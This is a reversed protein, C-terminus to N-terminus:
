VEMLEEEKRYYLTLQTGEVYVFIYRDHTYEKENYTYSYTITYIGEVSIDVTNSKIACSNSTGNILVECEGDIYADGVKISTVANGLIFEVTPIDSVTVYRVIVTENGSEDTVTYTLVYIGATSTDVMGEVVTTINETDYTDVSYETYEDGITISDLSPNLSVIPATTDEVIVTRTVEVAINLNTDTINYTITYTGLVSTDVTDGGITAVGDSDYNDTFIAGSETYDSGAEVHVTEDGTLTIVPITTDQVIVTRTVEVAVNGETDTINYTVTYSGLTSSDITDGGITADGSEDYNDSYTAGNETYDSGAEVYITSDGILTIVPITTDQVIVTRTVETAVNGETDTINYTVTYSGLTSSDVTDGGITADGSEDYNDTFTAGEETYTGEYEVYIISDSTLTIVPLTTDQVIVTRTVEIAVNGETDTINYTITYTGLISSDVRDGGILADGSADYNDTFTAGLDVYSDDDALTIVPIYIELTNNFTGNGLQGDPNNGWTSVIGNKSLAAVTGGSLHTQIIKDTESSLIGDTINVPYYPPITEGNGVMGLSNKGWGYIQGNKTLLTISDWRALVYIPSDGSEFNFNNTIEYPTSKNSTTGDGILYSYTGWTFVRGSESFAVGHCGGITIGIIKDSEDIDFHDTIEMPILSATTSGNALQYHNNMGWTFVRGELSIAASSWYGGSAFIIKDTESLDFQQTIDIPLSSSLNTGNGLQGADNKGWTFVRGESTVLMNYYYANISTITEDEHFDFNSTIDIAQYSSNYTNDGLQGHSNVGWTLVRNNSTTVVIHNLGAVIHVITENPDLDLMYSIDVFTNQKSIYNEGLLGMTGNGTAYIKNRNTLLITVFAGASIQVVKENEIDTEDFEVYVIEDGTLTIVPATTDIPTNSSTTTRDKDINDFIIRANTAQINFSLFGLLGIVMFGIVKKM